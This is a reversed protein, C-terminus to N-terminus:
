YLGYLKKVGGVVINMLRQFTSSANKMGFPMVECEYLGDAVVFASIPKARETLPVQWCGKLLDIKTIFKAQGIQDICDEIRPIPFRGSQTVANVKRYDFCLRHQNQGKDVLVVPSSWSSSSPSILQNDLMYQVERKVIERKYPNLRYPYQKIPKAETLIVDHEILNTLGALDKFIDKFELLLELLDRIQSEKLHSIKNRL